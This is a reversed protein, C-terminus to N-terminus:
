EVANINGTMAAHRGCMYPAIQTALEPTLTFSMTSDTAVFNVSPNDEFTGVMDNQALLTTNAIGMILFPHARGAENKIEYRSGIKLTLATNEVNLSARAGDGDIATFIYATAGINNVTITSNVFNPDPINDKEETCAFIVSVMFLTAAFLKFYIKM